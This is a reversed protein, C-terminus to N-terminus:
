KYGGLKEIIADIVEKEYSSSSLRLTELVIRMDETTIQKHDETDSKYAVWILVPGAVVIVGLFFCLILLEM